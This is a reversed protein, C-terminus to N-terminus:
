NNYYKQKKLKIENILEQTNMDFDYLIYKKIKFQSSELIIEVDSDYLQVLASWTKWNVYKIKAGGKLKESNADVIYENHITGPPLAIGSVYDRWSNWWVVSIVYKPDDSIFKGILQKEKDAIKKKKRWSKKANKVLYFM